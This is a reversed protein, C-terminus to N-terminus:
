VFHQMKKARKIKKMTKMTVKGKKKKKDPKIEEILPQPGTSSAESEEPTDFFVIDPPNDTKNQEKLCKEM